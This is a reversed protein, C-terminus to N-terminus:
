GAASRDIAPLADSLAFPLVVVTVNDRGGAECAIRVLERAANLPALAADPPLVAAIEEVTGLYNWLGDSCLVVVGDGDPTLTRVHPWVEGADSGLWATIAHARHDAGAEAESLAGSAIMEEAWSDDTTLRSSPALERNHSDAAAVWYARSDGVWGITVATATVVASVYTCALADPDEGPRALDVVAELAAAVADRTASEPAAGADLAALLADAGADAAAQAADDSRTASSVGDCVVAVTTRRGHAASDVHRLALADENRQHRRGRDSVGAAVGLDVEVRDGLQPQLYGREGCYRDAGVADAACIACRARLDVGCAECFRDGPERLAGCAPCPSRQAFGASPAPEPMAHDRLPPM